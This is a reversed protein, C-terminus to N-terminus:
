HGEVTELCVHGSPMNEPTPVIRAGPGYDYGPRAEHCTVIRRWETPALPSRPPVWSEGRASPLAPVWVWRPGPVWYPRVLPVIPGVHGLNRSWGPAAGRPPIVLPPRGTASPATLWARWTSGLPAAPAGRGGVLVARSSLRSGGASVTEVLGLVVLLVVALISMWGYPVARGSVPSGFPSAGALAVRDGARWLDRLGIAGSAEFTARAQGLGDAAYRAVLRRV